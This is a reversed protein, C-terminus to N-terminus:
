SEEGEQAQEVVYAQCREEFLELIRRFPRRASPTSAAATEFYSIDAEDDWVNIVDNPQWDKRDSVGVDVYAGGHWMFLLGTEEDEYEISAVNLGM